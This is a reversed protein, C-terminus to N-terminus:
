DWNLAGGTQYEIVRPTIVVPPKELAVKLRGFFVVDQFGPGYAVFLFRGLIFKTKRNVRINIMGVRSTYVCGEFTSFTALAMEQKDSFELKGNKIAGHGEVRFQCDEYKGEGITNISWGGKEDFVINVQKAKYNVLESTELHCYGVAQSNETVSASNETPM